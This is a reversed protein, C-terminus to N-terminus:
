KLLIMKKADMYGLSTELKYFYVGSSWGKGNLTFKHSGSAYHQNTSYVKRGLIDFVSIKIDSAKPLTFSIETTPNFPNPYNQSLYFKEPASEDSNVNLLEDVELMEGKIDLGTESQSNETWVMLVNDGNQRVQLEDILDTEFNHVERNEFIVEGVASYANTYLVKGRTYFLFCINNIVSWANSHSNQEFGNRIEAIQNHNEDIFQYFVGLSDHNSAVFLNNQLHQYQSSFGALLESEYGLENNFIRANSSNRVMVTNSGLKNIATESYIGLDSVDISRVINGDYDLKILKGAENQRVLYLLVTSDSLSMLSTYINDTGESILISNLRNYNEDFIEINLRSSNYEKILHTAFLKDEIFAFDQYNGSIKIDSVNSENNVIVAKKDIETDYTVLWNDDETLYISPSTQNSGIVDDNVRITDVTEFNEDISILQIDIEDTSVVQFKGDGFPVNEYVSFVMTSDIMWNDLFNGDNDCYLLYNLRIDASGINYKQLSLIIGTTNSDKRFYGTNAIELCEYEGVTIDEFPERFKQIEGDLNGELDVVMSNISLHVGDFGFALYKEETVPIAVLRQFYDGDICSNFEEDYFLYSKIIGESNGEKYFYSSLHPEYFDTLYFIAYNNGNAVPFFNMGELGETLNYNLVNGDYDLSTVTIPYGFKTICLLSDELDITKSVVGHWGTGCWPLYGSMIFTNSGLNNGDYFNQYVDMYFIDLAVNRTEYYDSVFKLSDYLTVSQDVSMIENGGLFENNGNLFQGFTNSSGTRSDRWKVLKINNESFYIQPQSKYFTSTFSDDSITFNETKSVIVSQAFLNATFIMLLIIRLM